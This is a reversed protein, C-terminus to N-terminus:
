RFVVFGAAPVSIQAAKGNRAEVAVAQGIQTADSSYVCTLTDGTAHLGADVTVWATTDLDMNTNIALLVERQNFIRSWPVISLLRGNLMRPLGFSVGNGSIERLFQRGRRIVIEQQRLKLIKALASLAASCARAFSATTAARATL